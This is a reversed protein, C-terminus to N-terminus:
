PFRTSFYHLMCARTDVATAVTTTVDRIMVVDNGLAKLYEEEEEKKGDEEDDKEEKPQERQPKQKPASRLYTRAQLPQPFHFPSHAISSPVKAWNTKPPPTLPHLGRFKTKVSRQVLHTTLYIPLQNEALFCDLSPKPPSPFCCLPEAVISVITPWWSIKLVRLLVVCPQKILLWLVASFGHCIWLGHPNM